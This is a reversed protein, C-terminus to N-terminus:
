FDWEASDVGDTMTKQRHGQGAERVRVIKWPNESMMGLLNRSVGKEGIQCLDLENTKLEMM